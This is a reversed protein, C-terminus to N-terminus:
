GETPAAIGQQRRKASVIQRLVDVEQEEPVLRRELSLELERREREVHRRHFFSVTDRLREAPPVATQKRRALREQRALQQEDIAVMLSKLREDEVSALVMGFDLDAGSEELARYTRFVERAAASSLDDDALDSLATPVLEPHAALIQLLEIEAPSVDGLAYTPTQALSEPSEEAARAGLGKGRRLERFRARV